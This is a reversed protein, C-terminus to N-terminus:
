FLCGNHLGVVQEVFQELGAGVQREFQSVPGHRRGTRVSQAGFLDLFSAKLWSQRM